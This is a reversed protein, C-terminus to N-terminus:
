IKREFIDFVTDAIQKALLPPVANGVQTYQSTRSGCFFYNDPFTQLRAAERVTLSRCQSPDPHIYYHGDKAIHCTVTKAPHGSLQVRFRDAFYDSKPKDKLNKHDPILSKPFDAIVPSRKYVNAYCAAFFYRHLDSIMHAKTIHNCIGKINPDYFWEKMYKNIKKTTVFESGRDKHPLRLSNITEEIKKFLKINGNNRIEYFWNQTLINNLSDIWAKKNDPERSLGSRVRPLSNLVRNLPIEKNEKNLVKLEHINIDDRIGLLIVRHRSQPIGYKEFKIIFDKPNFEPMGFLNYNPKKVLSCIKYNMEQLKHNSNGKLGRFAAVPNELDRRIKEFVLSGNIESSLLGVVNEMVFVPPAHKALIRLYEKYLFVRPDDQSVGGVRSRGIVSYPQCPPGGILVWSKQGFLANEIRRDVEKQDIEGLTAMWAEKGSLDAEKPYARFLENRLIEQRIYMYYEEPVEGCLFQRFFSRLLLTQYAHKENEVSLCIKFPRLKDGTEFASFGEGLGGPGAFLDIVPINDNMNERIPDHFNLKRITFRPSTRLM